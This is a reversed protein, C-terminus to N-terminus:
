IGGECDQCVPYGGLNGRRGDKGDRRICRDQDLILCGCKGAAKAGSANVGCYELIPNPTPVAESHAPPRTETPELGKGPSAILAELRAKELNTEPAGMAELRAQAVARTEIQPAQTASRPADIQNAPPAPQAAGTLRAIAGEQAVTPPIVEGHEWGWYVRNPLDLMAAAEVQTKGLRKRETKLTDAFTM